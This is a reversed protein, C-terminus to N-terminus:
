RPTCWYREEDCRPFHWSRCDDDTVCAVCLGHEPHCRQRAWRDGPADCARDDSCVVHAQCRGDICLQDTPCDSRSECPSRDVLVCRGVDADCVWSPPSCSAPECVEVCFGDECVLPDGDADAEPCDSDEGGEIPCRAALQCRGAECVRTRRCPMGSGCEPLAEGAPTHDGCALTALLIQGVLLSRGAQRSPGEM